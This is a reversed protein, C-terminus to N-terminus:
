KTKELFRDFFEEFPGREEEYFDFSPHLGTSMYAQIEDAFVYSTYGLKKLEQNIRERVDPDLKKVLKVMHKKYEPYLYFFAHAIEHDKADDDGKLTGIIYFPKNDSKKKCKHYAEFMREDYHNHDEIILSSVKAIIEGYFNFGGWDKPYTFLGKGFKKSYWEMFDVIKFRKGRFKPNPSEYFEQYRLFTMCMDYQDQFEFLFVNKKVEKVKYSIKM